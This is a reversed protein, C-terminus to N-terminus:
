LLWERGDKQLLLDAEKPGWSGAAYNPFERPTLASWVDMIPQVLAWGTEVMEARNFLTHDGNMCDYLVTEYGTQPEIGFYDSYKFSMDVQGLQVTPGPIKANFRLSIGEDPQIKIHLLNPLVNQGSGGFLISPESKFQIVIESAHTKMRKGTRLYFPVHLWRWNDLFLKLAIYTETSSRPAVNKESRYGPVEVSHVKGPGYQGRVAQQLVEEPTFIQIAHLVKAKEDQIYEASFAVPPEMTILSLVQFLHNPVMDRLAGAHEYYAGREEVGLVEAVTIQVHDIYRRNWIPEFIGNSFRFALLNQVTEKGLFHDIRFIQQEDVVRLLKRNLAKASALDHGFPKEVIIRRFYGEKGETLLGTKGLNAAITTAFAPPAAFYFLYNQSAKQIEPEKLKNKLEVYVEPDDFVGSIYDVRDILALGFKRAASNTVFEKVDKTLQARFTKTTYKEMSVGIICFKKDLLGKSGLNCIAPYLLRKTLDGAIGFIVLVCPNAPKRHVSEAINAHRKVIM